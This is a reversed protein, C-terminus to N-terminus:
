LQAFRDMSAHMFRVMRLEWTDYCSSKTTPIIAGADLIYPVVPIFVPVTVPVFGACSLYSVPSNSLHRFKPAPIIATHFQRFSLHIFHTWIVPALLSMRGHVPPLILCIDEIAALTYVIRVALLWVLQVLV